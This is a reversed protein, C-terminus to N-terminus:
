EKFMEWNIDGNTEMQSCMINYRMDERDLVEEHHYRPDNLYKESIINYHDTHSAKEEEQHIQQLQISYYMDETEKFITQNYSTRIM